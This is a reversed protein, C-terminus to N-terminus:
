SSLTVTILSLEVYRTVLQRTKTSWIHVKSQCASALYVGNSSLALATITGSVAKNSLTGTKTWTSRSVTAIEILRISRSHVHQYEPSGVTDKPLWLSIIEPITGYCLATM